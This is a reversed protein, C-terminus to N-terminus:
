RDALDRMAARYHPNEYARVIFEVARASAHPYRERLEGSPPFPASVSPAVSSKAARKSTSKTPKKASARKPRKTLEEDRRQKIM